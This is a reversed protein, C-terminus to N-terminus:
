YLVIGDLQENAKGRDAAVAFGLRREGARPSGAPFEANSPGPTPDQEPITSQVLTCFGDLFIAWAANMKRKGLADGSRCGLGSDISVPAESGNLTSVLNGGRSAARRKSADADSSRRRSRRSM